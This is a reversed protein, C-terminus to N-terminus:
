SKKSDKYAFLGLLVFSLLLLVLIAWPYAGVLMGLGMIALTVSVVILCIGVAMLSVWLIIAFLLASPSYDANKEWNAHNKKLFKFFNSM